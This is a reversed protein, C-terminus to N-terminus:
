PSIEAYECIMNTVAEATTNPAAVLLLTDDGAVSGLIEDLGSRDIASAVVHASGPLTKIVVMNQNAKVSVVWERLVRSLLDHPVVQEHPSEPIAYASEGDATRIKIAGLEELDRSVTAQTVEIGQDGLATVIQTQGTVAQESLLQSILHQRQAKSVKRTNM